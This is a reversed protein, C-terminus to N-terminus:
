GRGSYGRKVDTWSQLCARASDLAIFLLARHLDADPMKNSENAATLEKRDASESQGLRQSRGGVVQCEYLWADAVVDNREIGSSGSRLPTLPIRFLLRESLDSVQRIVKIIHVMVTGNQTKQRMEM